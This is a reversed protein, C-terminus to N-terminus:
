NKWSYQADDLLGEQGKELSFKGYLYESEGRELFWVSAVLWKWSGYYHLASEPGGGFFSSKTLPWFHNAELDAYSKVQIFQKRESGAKRFITESLDKGVVTDKDSFAVTLFVEGGIKPLSKADAGAPAFLVVAGPKVTMNNQFALGAAISAVYAGKSHGAFVVNKRSLGFQTIACDTLEVYDKGMRNWDQDFFGTDFMPHIAAIGKKALHEFTEKYHSVDLAQGHGFVVVSPEQLGKPLFVDVDRGKCKIKKQESEHSYVKSGPHAPDTPASPAALVFSALLIKAIM